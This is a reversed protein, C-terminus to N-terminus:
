QQVCGSKRRGTSCCAQEYGGTQCACLSKAPAADEEENLADLLNEFEDDTIDGDAVAEGASAAVEPEAEAEAEIEAEPEPEPEAAEGGVSEGNAIRELAELLEPAAPTPEERAKVQDFMVNVEDLARLVVDM